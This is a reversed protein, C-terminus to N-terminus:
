SFLISSLQRRASVTLENTPGLADFIKLLQKRAAEENWARDAQIITLLNDCAAEAQGAAFQAVALDYRAQKDTPTATVAAELAGLQGISEKAEDALDLAARVATVAPEKAAEEDLSDIIQRASDHDGLAILCQALGAAAKVNTQDAQLIETYLATATDTDGAELAEEARALVDDLGKAGPAGDGLGALKDIFAKIQSDPLAGVFGDVPRGQFFAYVAPISQIRMQQAIEPNQDIDIKVLKVAGAAATVAKEIAPGLQKCPGCWPAWFDVIVPVTMSEDLVDRAFTATTTDKILGGNGAAATEPSGIIPEM